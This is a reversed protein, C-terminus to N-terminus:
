DNRLSSSNARFNTQNTIAIIKRNDDVVIVSNARPSGGNGDILTAGNLVLIENENETNVLSKNYLDNLNVAWIDTSSTIELLSFICLSLMCLSPSGIFITNM